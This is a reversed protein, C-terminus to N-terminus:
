LPFFFKVRHGAFRDAKFASIGAFGEAVFMVIDREPNKPAAYRAGLAAILKTWLAPTSAALAYVVTVCYLSEGTHQFEIWELGPAANTRTRTSGGWAENGPFAATVDARTSKRSLTAFLKPTPPSGPAGLWAEIDPDIRPSTRCAVVLAGLLLSRRPLTTM